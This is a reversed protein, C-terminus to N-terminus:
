KVTFATALQQATYWATSKSGFVAHRASNVASSIYETTLSPLSCSTLFSHVGSIILHPCHESSGHLTGRISQNCSHTSAHTSTHM